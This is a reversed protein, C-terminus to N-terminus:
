CSLRNGGTTQFQILTFGPPPWKPPCPPSEVVLGLFVSARLPPPDCLGQVLRAVGTGRQQDPM